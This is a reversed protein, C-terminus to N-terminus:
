DSLLFNVLKRRIQDEIELKFLPTAESVTTRVCDLTEQSFQALPNEYSAPVAIAKEIGRHFDFVKKDLKIKVAAEIADDLVSM